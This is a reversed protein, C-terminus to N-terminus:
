DNWRTFRALVATALGFVAGVGYGVNAINTQQVATNQAALVDPANTLSPIGKRTGTAIGDWVIAFILTAISVGAVAWFAVPTVLRLEDVKKVETAASPAATTGAKAVPAPAAKAAPAPNPADASPAPTQALALQSVLLSAVIIKM